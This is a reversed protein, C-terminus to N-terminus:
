QIKTTNQKEINEITIKQQLAWDVARCKAAKFPGVAAQWSSIEASASTFAISKYASM